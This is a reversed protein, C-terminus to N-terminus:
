MSGPTSYLGGSYGGVEGDSLVWGDNTYTGWGTLATQPWNEFDQTVDTQACLPIAMSLLVILTGQSVGLRCRDAAMELSIM